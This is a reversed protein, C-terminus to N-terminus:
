GGLKEQVSQIKQKSSSVQDRRDDIKVSTSVRQAGSLFPAEHLAEIARWIMNLEGEIITSMSTLEYTIGDQQKLIRQMEAVYSSLSTTATGIPIVTVEAIAM